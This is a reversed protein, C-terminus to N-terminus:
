FFMDQTGVWQEPYLVVVAGHEPEWSCELLLGFGGDRRFFLTTPVASAAGGEKEVYQAILEVSAKEYRGKNKEFEVFSAEQEPSIGEGEFASFVCEIRMKEGFQFDIPKRWGFDFAFEKMDVKMEM